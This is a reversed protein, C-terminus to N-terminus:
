RHRMVLGDMKMKRKLQALQQEAKDQDIEPGVRVRFSTKGASELKEVFASFGNGRLKDRLTFANTESSFSGVQVVWGSVVASQAPGRVTSTSPKTEAAVVKPVVVEPQSTVTAPPEASTSKQVPAVGSAPAVTEETVESRKEQEPLVSRQMTGEPEPLKKIELPIIETRVLHAPKEPIVGGDSPRKGSESLIMPLVIVAISVLIIGGVIRQKIRNNEM